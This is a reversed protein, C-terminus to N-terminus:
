VLVAFCFRKDDKNIMERHKYESDTASFKM